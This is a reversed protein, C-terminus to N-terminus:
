INGRFYIHGDIVLIDSGPPMKRAAWEEDSLLYNEEKALGIGIDTKVLSGIAPDKKLYATVLGAKLYGITVTIDSRVTLSYEGTDGNMGSNIDASIVFASSNNIGTIADRCRGRVEGKFGTGLLCDVITDYPDLCGESYPRVAVGAQIVRDKYYESDESFHDSVTYIDVDKGEAALIEALAFGDGGNNGSGAIVATKGPYSYSARIGEAAKRMLILSSTGSEITMRDSLRMNEVSIVHEMHNEKEKKGDLPIIGNFSRCSPFAM